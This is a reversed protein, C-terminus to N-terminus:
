GPKSHASILTLECFTFQLCVNCFASSISLLQLGCKCLSMFQYMLHVSNKKVQFSLRTNKKERMAYVCFRAFSPVKMINQSSLLNKRQNQMRLDHRVQFPNSPWRSHGVIEVYHHRKKGVALHIKM